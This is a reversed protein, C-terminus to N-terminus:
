LDCIHKAHEHSTCGQRGDINIFVSPVELREGILAVLHECATFAKYALQSRGIAFWVEIGVISM